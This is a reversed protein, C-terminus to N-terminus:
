AEVPLVAAVMNRGEAERDVVVPGVGQGFVLVSYPIDFEELGYEILSRGVINVVFLEQGSFFEIPDFQPVAGGNCPVVRIQLSQILLGKLCFLSPTETEGRNNMLPEGSLARTGLRSVTPRRSWSLRSQGPLMLLLLVDNQATNHIQEM